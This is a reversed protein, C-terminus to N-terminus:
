YDLEFDEDMETEGFETFGQAILSDATEKCSVHTIIEADATVLGLARLEEIHDQMNDISINSYVIDGEYSIHYNIFDYAGYKEDYEATLEDIVQNVISEDYEAVPTEEIITQKLLIDGKSYLTVTAKIGNEDTKTLITATLNDPLTTNDEVPIDPLGTTDPTNVVSFVAVLVIITFIVGAIIGIILGAKSKKKKPASQPQAYQQTQAYQQPQNYQQTQTYQQPQPEQPQVPPQVSPQADTPTGCGNCFKASDSLEKGCNKCFM